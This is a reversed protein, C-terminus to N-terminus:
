TKCAPKKPDRDDELMREEPDYAKEAVITKLVEELTSAKYQGERFFPKKSGFVRSSLLGYQTIAEDVTMRLRGLMLAILRDQNMM